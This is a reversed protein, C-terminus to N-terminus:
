SLIQLISFNHYLYKPPLIMLLFPKNDAASHPTKITPPSLSYTSWVIM